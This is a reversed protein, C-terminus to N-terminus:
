VILNLVLFALHIFITVKVILYEILFDFFLNQYNIFYKPMISLLCFLIPFYSKLISM